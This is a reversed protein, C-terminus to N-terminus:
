KQSGHRQRLTEVEAGNGGNSLFIGELVSGAAVQDKRAVPRDRACIGHDLLPRPPCGALKDALAQRIQHSRGTTDQMFGM